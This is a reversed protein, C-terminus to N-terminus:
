WPWGKFVQTLSVNKPQGNGWAVGIDRTAQIFEKQLDIEQKLILDWEREDVQKLRAKIEEGLKLAEPYCKSNRYIQSLLQGASEAAVRTYKANWISRAENLKKNCDFEIYQLFIKESLSLGKIYCDKCVSPISTLLYFAEGYENRNALSQATEKIIDCNSNYYSVIKQKGDETFSKILPNNVKLSRVAQNFAKTETNGSGKTNITITKFVIKDAADVIYLIVDVNFAYMVPASAVVEKNVFVPKATLYFRGNSNNGGVSMGYESTIENLKDKLLSQAYSPVVGADESVYTNLVVKAAENAPDNVKSSQASIVSIISVIALLLTIFKKM